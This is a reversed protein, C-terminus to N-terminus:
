CASGMIQHSSLGTEIKGISCLFDDASLLNLRTNTNPFEEGGKIGLPYHDPARSEEEGRM